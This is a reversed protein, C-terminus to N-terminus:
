YFLNTAKSNPELFQFVPRFGGINDTITSPASNFRQTKYTDDDYGRISRYASTAFQGNKTITSNVTTDQMWSWSNCHWVNDDGATIKGGLDSNVIYKDWENNNPWAGLGQEVLSSKGGTGLYANGGTLSRILKSNQVIPIGAAGNVSMIINKLTCNFAGYNGYGLQVYYRSGKIFTSKAVDSPISAVGDVKISIKNASLDLDIDWSHWTNISVPNTNYSARLTYGTPTGYYTTDFLNSASMESVAIVSNLASNYSADVYSDFKINVVDTGELALQTLTFTGGCHATYTSAIKLETPSIYQYKANICNVSALYSAAGQILNASNLADWTVSHQVVRDSICIGKDVKIAYAYGNPTASGSVPIENAQATALPAGLDYISCPVGSAGVAKFAIYDGIAMDEFRTRFQGKTAPIPM